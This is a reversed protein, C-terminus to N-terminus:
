WLVRSPDKLQSPCSCNLRPHWHCKRSQFPFPLPTPFPCHTLFCRTKWVHCAQTKPRNNLTNSNTHKTSASAWFGCLCFGCGRRLKRGLLAQCCECQQSHNSPEPQSRRLPVRPPISSPFAARGPWWCPHSIPGAKEVEKRLASSFSRLLNHHPLILMYGKRSDKGPSCMQERGGCWFKVVNWKLEVWSTLM